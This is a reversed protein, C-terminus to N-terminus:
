DKSLVKLLLQTLQEKNEENINGFIQPTNDAIRDILEERIKIGEPTLSVLKARRDHPKEQREIYKQAFMRDIIGTVNSPDCSLLTAIENMQLTENPKMSALTYLQPLSLDHEEAIKILSPKSKFSVRLFLWSLNTNLTNENMYINYKVIDISSLM